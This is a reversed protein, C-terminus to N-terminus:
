TSPTVRSSKMRFTWNCSETRRVPTALAQTGKALLESFGVCTRLESETPILVPM